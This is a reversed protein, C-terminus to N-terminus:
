KLMQVVSPRSETISPLAARPYCQAIGKKKVTGQEGLDACLIEKKKHRLEPRGAGPQGM